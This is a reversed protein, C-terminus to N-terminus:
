GRGLPRGPLCMSLSRCARFYDEFCSKSNLLSGRSCVLLNKLCRLCRNGSRAAPCGRLSGGAPVVGCYGALQAEGAFDFVGADIVVVVAAAPGPGLIVQLNKHDRNGSLEGAIAGLATAFRVCAGETRILVECIDARWQYRRSWPFRLRHGKSARYLPDLDVAVPFTLTSSYDRNVRKQSLLLQDGGEHLSRTSFHDPEPVKAPDGGGCARPGCFSGTAARCATPIM